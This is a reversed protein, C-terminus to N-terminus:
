GTYSPATPSGDILFLRKDPYCFRWDEGPEFSRILPHGSAHHHATAHKGPSKDCCGVFGCTQCFRLHVWERSGKALCDECGYASIVPPALDVSIHQCSSSM